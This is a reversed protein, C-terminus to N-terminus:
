IEVCLKLGASIIDNIPIKVDSSFLDTKPKETDTPVNLWIADEPRLLQMQPKYSPVNSDANLIYGEGTPTTMSVVSKNNFDNCRIVVSEVAFPWRGIFNNKDFVLENSYPDSISSINSIIVTLVIGILTAIALISIIINPKLKSM